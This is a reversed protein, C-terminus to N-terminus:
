RKVDGDQSIFSLAAMAEDLPTKPEEQTHAVRRRQFLPSETSEDLGQLKFGRSTKLGFTKAM